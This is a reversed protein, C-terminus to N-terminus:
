GKFSLNSFHLFGRSNMALIPNPFMIQRNSLLKTRRRGNHPVSGGKLTRTGGGAWM